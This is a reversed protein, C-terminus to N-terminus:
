VVKIWWGGDVVGGDDPDRYGDCEARAREGDGFTSGLNVRGGVVV